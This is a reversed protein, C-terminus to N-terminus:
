FVDRNSLLAWPTKAIIVIDLWVSWNNIYEIDYLFRKEMKEDTDTEGRYGNIQALGTIGPKAKHRFMYGTIKKRYQENHMIAHPRPGVMSMDGRLVNFLQPLEDLSTRRLFRGVPTVRSDNKTAQVFEECSETVTMTRFKWVTIPRASMGYRQQRYIVPGDSTAKVLIGIVLMPIAMIFLAVTAIVLDEIRKAISGGGLAPTDIISVALSDGVATWNGQMLDADFLDPVWFVSVTTEGLMTLLQTIRDRESLPLAIYVVDVEGASAMAYLDHEEGLVPLDADPASAPRSGGAPLVYGMIDIGSFASSRLNAALKQAATGDGVIVATRVLYGAAFYRKLLHRLLARALFLVLPVTVSWLGLTFRSMEHTSKTAYGIAMLGSLTVMWSLSLARLETSTSSPAFHTYVHQTSAAVYFIVIATFVVITYKDNWVLEGFYAISCLPLLCAILIADTFKLLRGIRYESSRFKSM